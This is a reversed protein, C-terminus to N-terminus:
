PVFEQITMLDGSWVELLSVNKTYTVEIIDAANPDQVYTGNNLRYLRNCPDKKHSEVLHAFIDVNAITVDSSENRAVPILYDHLWVSLEYAYPM